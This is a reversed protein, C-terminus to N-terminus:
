KLLKIIEKDSMLKVEKEGRKKYEIKDGTKESVVLRHTIGILDAESLKQGASADERDDFLVDIGEKILQNYLNEADKVDKKLNILHAKFPSVNEPWIIGKDDNFVEALTGMARSPGLGYCGMIIPQEQNKEDVFKFNFANSFKTGLKFINGVEIAKKEVLKKNGCEPCTKQENILEKNVAVHCKECLYITDEGTACLTQYEHSYKSFTGGSAYTKVTIKDLGLREWIKEYAQEVKEYYQDLDKQNIHFSYLDKMRFERGRLLGSKARPENRFKTQIQYVAKPLDKYSFIIKQALPTVTEEHTPGLALDKEGAGKLRFLVDMDWRGTKEWIERPQLAPMLIEQGGVANMEERIIQEIKQLVRLGLPLFQYVGAMLKDIYGARVLMKASIAEEDKPFEKLTRYFLQSQKM